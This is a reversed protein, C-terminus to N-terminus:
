YHLIVQQSQYRKREGEDRRDNSNSDVYDVFDSAALLTLYDGYYENNQQTIFKWRRESSKYFMLTDGNQVGLNTQLTSGVPSAWTGCNTAVKRQRISWTESCNSCGSPVDENNPDLSYINVCNQYNSGEPEFTYYNFRFGNTPTQNYTCDLDCGYENFSCTGDGCALDDTSWTLSSIEIISKVDIENPQSPGFPRRMYTMAVMSYLSTEVMTDEGEFVTWGSDYEILLQNNAYDIGMPLRYSEDRVLSFPCTNLTSNFYLDWAHLCNECDQPRDPSGYNEPMFIQQCQDTEGQYSYSIVLSQMGTVMPADPTRISVCDPEAAYNEICYFESPDGCYGNDNECELYDECIVGNGMGEYCAVYYPDGCGGNDIDCNSLPECGYEEYSYEICVEDFACGNERCDDPSTMIVQTGGEDGGGEIMGGTETGGIVMTGGTMPSEMTTGGIPIGENVCEYLGSSQIVCIFGQACAASQMRCDDISTM